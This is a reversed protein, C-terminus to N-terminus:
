LEINSFLSDLKNKVAERVVNISTLEKQYDQVKWIWTDVPAPEQMDKNLIEPNIGCIEILDEFCFKYLESTLYERHDLLDLQKLYADVEENKFISFPTNYNSKERFYLTFNPLSGFLDSVVNMIKAFIFSYFRIKILQIDNTPASIKVLFMRLANVSDEIYYETSKNELLHMNDVVVKCAGDLDNYGLRNNALWISLEKIWYAVNSDINESLLEQYKKLVLSKGLDIKVRELIDAIDLIFVEQELDSYRKILNRNVFTSLDEKFFVDNRETMGLYQRLLFLTNKISNNPTEIEKKLVSFANNIDKKALHRIKGSISAIEKYTRGGNYDHTNMESSGGGYIVGFSM